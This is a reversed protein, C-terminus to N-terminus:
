AFVRRPQLGHLEPRTLGSSDPCTDCRAGSSCCTPDDSSCSCSWGDVCRGCGAYHCIRQAPTDPVQDGIICGNHDEGECYSLEAGREDHVGGAHFTHYLGVYHGVEHVFTNGEDYPADTGGPLTAHHVIVADEHTGNAMDWPFAAEGLFTSGGEITYVNLTRDPSVSLARTMSDAVSADINFAGLSFWRSNRTTDVSQLTFSTNAGAFVRNLTDVAAELTVLLDDPVGEDGSDSTVIHFAIPVSFAEPQFSFLAPGEYLPTRLASAPADDTTYCYRRRILTDGVVPRTQRAEPVPIWASLFEREAARARVEDEPSLPFSALLELDAALAESLRRLAEGEARRLEDALEAVADLDVDEAQRVQQGECGWMSMAAGALLGLVLCRRPQVRRGLSAPVSM